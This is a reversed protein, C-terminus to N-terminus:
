LSSKKLIKDILRNSFGPIADPEMFASVKPLNPLGNKRDAPEYWGKSHLILTRAGQRMEPIPFTLDAQDGIEPQTYYAQDDDSLSATVDEGCGAVASKAALRTVSVPVEDSQDLAVYDIEWFRNGTVLRIRVQGDGSDPLKLSLIDDKLAVPGVLNYYDAFEWKGKNEIFVSLPINQELTWRRIEDPGRGRLKKFWESDLMGMERNFETLVYELWRSNKARIVLRANTGTGKRPFTLVVEQHLEQTGQSIEGDYSLSDKAALLPLIDSGTGSVASSPNVSAAVPLITGNKDALIETSEPHDVVMLEALNTHQIEKLENNIRIKYTGDSPALGELRLYDHRELMQNIAGAYIEGAFHYGTGDYTYVFPCSAIALFVGGVLVVSAPILLATCGATALGSATPDNRYYEALRVSGMPISGPGSLVLTSPRTYLHVENMKYNPQYQRFKTEGKRPAGPNRVTDNDKYSRTATRNLPQQRYSYTKIFDGSLSDNRIAPGKIFWTQTSDHLFTLRSDMQNLLTEPQPDNVSIVKYYHCGSILIGAAVLTITVLFGPYRGYRGSPIATTKM